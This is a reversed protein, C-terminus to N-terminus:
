ITADTSVSPVPHRLRPCVRRAHDVVLLSKFHSVIAGFGDALTGNVNRSWLYWFYALWSHGTVQFEKLEGDVVLHDPHVTPM